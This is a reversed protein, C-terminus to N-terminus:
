LAFRRPASRPQMARALAHALADRYADIHAVSRRAAEEAATDPGPAATSGLERIIEALQADDRAAFFQSGAPAQERFLPTDSLLLRKGLARAEEVTTSWGEYLSPNMVLMSARYLDMQDERPIRQLIRVRDAVGGDALLTRLRPYHEPARYDSTDGSCVLMPAKPGLRAWARFVTEHNKHIWFQAPFYVFREDLAYRRVTIAPDRAYWPDEPLCPFRLATVDDRLWPFRELAVEYAHHSSVIVHSAEAAIRRMARDRSAIEGASFFEPCHVHQFDWLWGIWPPRSHRGLSMTVPLVCSLGAQRAAQELPLVRHGALGLAREVPRPGSTKPPEFLATEVGETRELEQAFDASGRPLLWVPHHAVDMTRLVRSLTRIYYLGGLWLSGAYLLLGVRM